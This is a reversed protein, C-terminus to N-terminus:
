IEKDKELCEKDKIFFFLYETKVFDRRYSSM